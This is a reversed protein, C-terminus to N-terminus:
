LVLDYHQSPGNSLCSSALFSFYSFSYIRQRTAHPHRYHRFYGTERVEKLTVISNRLFYYGFGLLPNILMRWSKSM